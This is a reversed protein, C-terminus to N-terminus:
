VPVLHLQTKVVPYLKKLQARVPQRDHAQLEHNCAEAQCQPLQAAAMM